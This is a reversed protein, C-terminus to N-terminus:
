NEWESKIVDKNDIEYLKGKDTRAIFCGGSDGFSGVVLGNLKEEGTQRGLWSDDLIAELWWIRLRSAM